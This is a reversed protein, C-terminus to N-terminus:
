LSEQMELKQLFQAAEEIQHESFCHIGSNSLLAAVVGRGLIKKGKFRGDYVEYSGCSPSGEKLIAMKINNERCIKLAIEAGKVFQDTHDMQSKTRIRAQGELVANGSGTGIIEHPARPIPFGSSVEPCLSVIRGEEKWQDLKFHELKADGGHYRVEEGLLCASVFIKEKM